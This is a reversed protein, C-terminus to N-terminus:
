YGFGSDLRNTLLLIRTPRLFSDRENLLCEAKPKELYSNKLDLKLSKVEEWNHIIQMM